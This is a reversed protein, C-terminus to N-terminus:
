RGAGPALSTGDFCIRERRLRASAPASRDGAQRPRQRADKHQSQEDRGLGGSRLPNAHEM